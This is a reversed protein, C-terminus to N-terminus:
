TLTEENLGINWIELNLLLANAIFDDNEKKTLTTKPMYYLLPYNKKFEQDEVNEYYYDTLACNFNWPKCTVSKDSKPGGFM